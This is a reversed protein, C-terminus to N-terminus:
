GARLGVSDTRWVADPYVLTGTLSPEYAALPLVMFADEPIRLSPRRFGLAGAPRFGLRPYFSPHGELFVLPEPRGALLELSATVLRTGIGTGRREPVVGLPGLVLVDVLRDPADLLARTYLLQGVPEGDAEAIFALEDDWAWSAHLAEVLRAIGADGDFARVAVDVFAELEDPRSRRVVTV